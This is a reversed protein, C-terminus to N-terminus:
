GIGRSPSQALVPCGRKCRREKRSPYGANKGAQGALPTM